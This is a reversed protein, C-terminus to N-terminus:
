GQTTTNGARGSPHEQMNTVRAGEVFRRRRALQPVQAAHMRSSQPSHYPAQSGRHREEAGQLVRRKGGRRLRGDGFIRMREQECSPADVANVLGFKAAITRRARDRIDTDDAWTGGVRKM